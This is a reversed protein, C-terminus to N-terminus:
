KYRTTQKLVGPAGFLLANAFPNSNDEEYAGVLQVKRDVVTAILECKPGKWQEAIKEPEPRVSARGLLEYFEVKPRIRQLLEVEKKNEDEPRKALDAVLSGVNPHYNPIALAQNGQEKARDRFGENLYKYGLNSMALTEERSAANQYAGVSKIPFGLHDFVVGLNNWVAAARSRYPIKLYHHLAHDNNGIESHKFALLFRTDIDEPELDVIREMVFISRHDDKEFEALERLFKLFRMESIEGAEASGRVSRIANIARKQDGARAYALAAEGTLRTKDETATAAAAAAMYHDAAAQHNEYVGLAKALFEQVSFNSPNEAALDKLRQLNGGKGFIVRLWEVSAKWSAANADHAADASALYARDVEQAQQEDGDIILNTVAIDYDGRKWEARPHVDISSDDGADIVVTSDPSLSVPEASASTVAVKPLLASLMELIKGFSREPAAREFRIYELNGQLGGPERVGDEILLILELGRGKALGIEQIVWDSTKWRFDADKAKRYEPRFAVPVLLTAEIVREKKTCIGIFVNKDQIVSLVKEALDGPKATEAHDWSFNPYSNQLQSFYKLFKGVVVSDQDLFSHGVFARIERMGPGKALKIFELKL